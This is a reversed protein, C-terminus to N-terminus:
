GTGASVITISIGTQGSKEVVFSIELEFEKVLFMPKLGRGLAQEQEKIIAEQVGIVLKAIDLEQASATTYRGWALLVTLVLFLKCWFKM